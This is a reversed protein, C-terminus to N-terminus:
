LLAKKILLIGFGIAILVFTSPEPTPSPGVPVPPVIPAGYISVGYIPPGIYPSQPLYTQPTYVPGIPPVVEPTFITESGIPVITTELPPAVPTELIEPPLPTAPTQPTWAIMNGCRLLITYEGDTVASEGAKVHVKKKTWRIDNGVRFSMYIDMDKDITFQRQKSFDFNKYFKQLVPDLQVQLDLEFMNKAGGPILSLRYMPKEIRAVNTIVPLVASSPVTPKKDAVSAVTAFALLIALSILIKRM